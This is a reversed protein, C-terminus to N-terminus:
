RAASEPHHDTSAAPTAEDTASRGWRHRVKTLAMGVFASALYTYALIVLVIRGSEVDLALDEVEGLKENQDNEVTM